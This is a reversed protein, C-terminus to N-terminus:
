NLEHKTNENFYKLDGWFKYLKQQCLKKKKEFLFSIVFSNNLSLFNVIVFKM